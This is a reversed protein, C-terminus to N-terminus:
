HWCPQVPLQGPRLTFGVRAAETQLLPILTTGAWGHFKEWAVPGIPTDGHALISANRTRVQDLMRDREAKVFARAADDGHHEVMAWADMLAAKRKGSRDAPLLLGDPIEEVRVDATDVGKQMLLWQATWETLRYLRAVADDYRGQAARREANLWLDWLRAPMRRPDDPEATLHKLFTLTLGLERGIRARYSDLVALAAPHDFRDWADFARSLDRAIQLEARLARDRPTAVAWLALAAEGYAFREWAVIFPAMDRRLRIGEAPVICSHETGDHVKVLDARAGTVLRIEVGPRELAAIALAVAMTKTGGTYDAVIQADPLRGRLGDIEELVVAVGMDLDDAPIVRTAYTGSELGALTPINPLRDVESGKRVEVPRGKGEVQTLSGPKGTAPDTDTCFFVVYRPKVNNIATLIPQHSGGVTCLLVPATM